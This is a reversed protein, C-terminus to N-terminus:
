LITPAFVAVRVLEQAIISFVMTTLQQSAWGKLELILTRNVRGPDAVNGNADLTAGVGYFISGPQMCDRQYLKSM